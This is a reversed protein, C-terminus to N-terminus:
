WSSVAQILDKISTQRAQLVLSDICLVRILDEIPTQVALLVLNDIGLVQLADIIVDGGM